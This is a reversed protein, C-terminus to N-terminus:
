FGCSAPAGARQLKGTVYLYGQYGQSGVPVQIQAAGNEVSIAPASADLCSADLASTCVRFEVGSLVPQQQLNVVYATILASEGQPAAPQAGVCSWRSGEGLQEAPYPPVAGNPSMQITTLVGPRLALLRKSSPGTVGDSEPPTAVFTRNRPTL